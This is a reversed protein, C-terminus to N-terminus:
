VQSSPATRVVKLSYYGSDFTGAWHFGNRWCVQLKGGHTQAFLRMGRSQNILQIADDTVYDTGNKLGFATFLNLLTELTLQVNVELEDPHETFWTTAQLATLAGIGGVTQRLAQM